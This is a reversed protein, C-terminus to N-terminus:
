RTLRRREDCFVERERRKGSAARTSYRVVTRDSRRRDTGHGGRFEGELRRSDLGVLLGMGGGIFECSASLILSPACRGSGSYSGSMTM